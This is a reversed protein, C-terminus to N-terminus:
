QITRQLLSVSHIIPWTRNFLSFRHFKNIFTKMFIYFIEFFRHFLPFYFLYHPFFPTHLYDYISLLSEHWFIIKHPKVAGFLNAGVFLLPRNLPHVCLYLIQSRLCNLCRIKQTGCNYILKWKCLLRWLLFKLSLYLVVQLEITFYLCFYVLVIVATWVHWLNYNNTRNLVWFLSITYLIVKPSNKVM